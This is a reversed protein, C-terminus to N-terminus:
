AAIELYLKKELIRRQKATGAIEGSVVRSPIFRVHYPNVCMGDSECVHYGYASREPYKGFIHYYGVRYALVGTKGPNGPVQFMTMGIRRGYKRFTAQHIGGSWNWCCEKCGMEHMCLYVKSWFGANTTRRGRYMHLLNCCQKNYCSHVIATRVPRMPQTGYQLEWFFKGLPVRDNWFSPPTEPNRRILFDYKLLDKKMFPHCCKSCNVGHQCRKVAYCLDRIWYQPSGALGDKHIYYGNYKLM